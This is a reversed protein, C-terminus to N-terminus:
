VVEAPFATLLLCKMLHSKFNSCQFNIRCVQLHVGLKPLAFLLWNNPTFAVRDLYFHNGGRNDFVCFLM